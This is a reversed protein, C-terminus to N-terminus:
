NVTKSIIIIIIKKHKEPKCAHKWIDPPLQDNGLM